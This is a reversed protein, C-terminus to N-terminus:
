PFQINLIKSYIFIMERFLPNYYLSTEHFYQRIVRSQSGIFQSILGWFQYINQSARWHSYSFKYRYLFNSCIKKLYNEKFFFIIKNVNSWNKQITIYNYISFCTHRNPVNDHAHNIKCYYECTTWNIWKPVVSMVKRLKM